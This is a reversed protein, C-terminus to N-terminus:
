ICLLTEMNSLKENVARSLLSELTQCAASIHIDTLRNDQNNSLSRSIDHNYQEPKTAPDPARCELLLIPTLISGHCTAQFSVAFKLRAVGIQGPLDMVTIEAAQRGNSNLFIVPEINLSSAEIQDQQNFLSKHKKAIDNAQIRLDSISIEDLKKILYRGSLPKNIATAAGIVDRMPIDPNLIWNQPGAIKSLKVPLYLTSIPFSDNLCLIHKYVLYAEDIQWLRELLMAYQHLIRCAAPDNEKIIKVLRRYFQLALTYNGASIEHEAKLGLSLHEFGLEVIRGHYKESESLLDQGCCMQIKKILSELESKIPDDPPKEPPHKTLGIVIRYHEGPVSGILEVGSESLRSIEANGSLDITLIQVSDQGVGAAAIINRSVPLEKLPLYKEHDWIKLMCDDKGISFLTERFGFLAYFDGQHALFSASEETSINFVILQGNKGPYALISCSHLYVLNVLSYKGPPETLAITKELRLDHYNWILLKGSTTLGAMFDPDIRSLSCVINGSTQLRVPRSDRELPWIKCEGATDTVALRNKGLWLLSLIPASHDIVPILNNTPGESHQNDTSHLYVIGKRSGGAAMGTEPEIGLAYISHPFVAKVLTDNQRTLASYLFLGPATGGSGLVYKEKENGTKMNIM